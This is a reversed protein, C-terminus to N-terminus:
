RGRLINLANTLFRNPQTGPHNVSPFAIVRGVRKWFFVLRPVNRAAIVHPPTGEHHLMAIPDMSGVQWDPVGNKMVVRTVISDRLTGPRRARNAASYADPPVYVGVLRRAETKVDQADRAMRRYVPGQPSRIFEALKRPDIVVAVGNYFVTPEAM